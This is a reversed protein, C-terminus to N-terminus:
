DAAEAFLDRPCELAETTRYGFRRNGRLPTM